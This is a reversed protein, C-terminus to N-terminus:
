CSQVFQMPITLDYVYLRKCGIAVCIWIAIDCGCMKVLKMDMLILRFQCEETENLVNYEEVSVEVTGTPIHPNVMKEPRKKVLGTVEIVSETTLEGMKGFGVCQVIGTRDRLDIFTLKGHDRKTAVWGKLLVQNDIENITDKILTRKQPNKM